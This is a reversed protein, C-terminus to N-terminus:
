APRRGFLPRVKCFLALFTLCMGLAFAPERVEEIGAGWPTWSFLGGLLLVLGTLQASQLLRDPLREVWVLLGVGEFRATWAATGIAGALFSLVAFTAASLAVGESLGQLGLVVEFGSIGYYAWFFWFMCWRMGAPVDDSVTATEPQQVVKMERPVEYFAVGVGHASQCLLALLCM